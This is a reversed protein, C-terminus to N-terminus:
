KKSFHKELLVDESPIYGLYHRLSSSSLTRLKRLIERDAAGHEAPSLGLLRANKHGDRHCCFWVAKERRNFNALQAVEEWAVWAVLEPAPVTPEPAVEISTATRQRGTEDKGGIRLPSVRETQRRVKGM